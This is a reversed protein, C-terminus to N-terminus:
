RLRLRAVASTVAGAYADYGDPNPHFVGNGGPPVIWSDPSNVGHGDFRKTVDVFAFGHASARDALVSNLLDAGENMAQQEAPSANLYAGYEPSFLRPYGTVVVMADPAAEEIQGYVSDLLGPLVGTITGRTAAVAGACEQDSGFLCAAVVTFWRIDNGGISLTVLDTDEDLATLQGDEVLSITTAGGCAVFDDLEVHVRGDLRPAPAADSRGCGDWYPPAGVGSAYSDGLGDLVVPGPKAAQAAPALLAPVLLATSVAGLLRRLPRIM